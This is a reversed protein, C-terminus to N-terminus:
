KIKLNTQKFAIIIAAAESDAGTTAVPLVAGTTLAPLFLGSTM